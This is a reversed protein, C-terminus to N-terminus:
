IQANNAEYGQYFIEMSYLDIENKLLKKRTRYVSLPALNYEAALQANSKNTDILQRILNRKKCLIKYTLFWSRDDYKCKPLLCEVCKKALACGTDEYEVLNKYEAM